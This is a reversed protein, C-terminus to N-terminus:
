MLRTPKELDRQVHLRELEGRVKNLGYICLEFSEALREFLPAEVAYEFVNFQSVVYYSDKGAQVMELYRQGDQHPWSNLLEPYMGTHFLTYDGIHKRIEREAEFSPASGLVPDSALLMTAMDELPRGQADRLRYLRDANSFDTLLDAVYSTVEGDDMGAHKVYCEAVVEHFLQRLSYPETEM